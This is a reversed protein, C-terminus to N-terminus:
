PKNLVAHGAPTLHDFHIGIALEQGVILREDIMLRLHDDIQQGTYGDISFGGPAAVDEYHPQVPLSTDGPQKSAEIGQLYVLLARVLNADRQM